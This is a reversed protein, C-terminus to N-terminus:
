IGKRIRKLIKGVKNSSQVHHVSHAPGGTLLSKNERLLFILVLPPGAMGRVVVCFIVFGSKTTERFPESPKQTVKGVM